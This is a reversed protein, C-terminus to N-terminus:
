ITWAVVLTLTGAASGVTDGTLCIDYEIFPDATLAADQWARNEVAAIDRAEFAIETGQTIASSLDVDTAYCDADVVAGGLAAPKYLGCDYVTGATIADCFVRISHIRAGSPVRCFRFVSGDDNAAAVEVTGVSVRLMGGEIYSNNPVRPSADANTIATSKTNAVAM